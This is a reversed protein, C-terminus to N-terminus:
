YFGSGKLEEQECCFYRQFRNDEADPRKHIYHNKSKALIYGKKRLANTKICVTSESVDMIKAIECTRKKGVLEM